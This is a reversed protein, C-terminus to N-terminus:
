ICTSRGERWGSASCRSPGLFVFGIYDDDPQAAAYGYLWANLCTPAMISILLPWRGKLWRVVGFEGAM